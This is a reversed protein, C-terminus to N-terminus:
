KVLRTILSERAGDAIETSINELASSIKELDISLNELRNKTELARLILWKTVRPNKPLFSGHFYTGVTNYKICGEIKEEFNNGFGLKVRGLPTPTVGPLFYTQGGHNEFGVLDTDVGPILCETIINGICRSKVNPDLAKTVVPFWKLGELEVGDGTLFSEGFLQYGGCITLFAVGSELENIISVQKHMLDLSVKEQEKDQGGGMFYLDSQEPLSEGIEVPQYIVELDLSSLFHRLAIINGMDGYLSM